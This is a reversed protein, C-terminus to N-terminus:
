RVEHDPEGSRCRGGSAQLHEVVGLSQSPGIRGEECAEWGVDDVVDVDDIIHDIECGRTTHARNSRFTLSHSLGRVVNSPSPVLSTAHMSDM